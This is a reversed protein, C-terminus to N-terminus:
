LREGKIIRKAWAFPCFDGCADKVLCRSCAEQVPGVLAQLLERLAAIEVDQDIYEPDDPDHLPFFYTKDNHLHQDIIVRYEPIWVDHSRSENAPIKM